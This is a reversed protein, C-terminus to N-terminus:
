PGLDLGLATRYVDHRAGLTRRRPDSANHHLALLTVDLGRALSMPGDEGLFRGALAAADILAETNIQNEHM